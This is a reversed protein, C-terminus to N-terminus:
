KLVRCTQIGYYELCAIATKDIREGCVLIPVAPPCSVTPTGLIRGLCAQVNKEEQPSLLAERPSCVTEPRLPLPPQNPIPKRPILTALTKQLRKIEQESIEPSIMLVLFDPDSFEPIIGRKQLFDALERGTYGFEKPALTLKLPENGRFLPQLDPLQQKLAETWTICRALRERYNGALIQNAYDLSQLILYSPSTSAFVSLASEAMSILSAPAKTSFHLYAGGTLVPLTKHASDCCLDAGLTMPHLSPSLFNLYAGHANDVMLLTKHKKCIESLGTLDVRNGLYDPSTLYVAAIPASEESLATDLEEPTIPCSLLNERNRPFLWQIKCDLLAASTLFTKHANRGALIKPQRGTEKSYLLALYVMARICLSSGEASYFTRGAGFLEAARAQSELLIGQASYLVDAGEIETIDLAEPGLVPNGKHGPMHLRLPSSKAYQEVFDCLPIQSKM